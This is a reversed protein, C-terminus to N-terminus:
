PNLLWNPALIDVGDLALAKGNGFLAHLPAGFAPPVSIARFADPDALDMLFLLGPFKTVSQYVIRGPQNTFSAGQEDRGPPTLASVLGTATDLRYLNWSGGRFSDYVIAAGDPSWAAQADWYEDNTLARSSASALEYVFIEGAADYVLARGDPSWSPRAYDTENFTLQRRKEGAADILFFQHIGGPNAQYVIWEGDPSWEPNLDDYNNDTLQRPASDGLRLWYLEADGGRRSAFVLDRTRPSINPQLADAFDPALRASIGRTLDAIRLQQRGSVSAVYVVQESASIHPAAGRAVLIFGLNVLVTLISLRAIFRFM